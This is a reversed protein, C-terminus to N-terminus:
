PSTVRYFRQQDGATPDTFQYQGPSIETAGGVRAWNTFLSSLNTTSYVSFSSGPTNTFSFQFAGNQLIMVNELVIAPPLLPVTFAYVQNDGAVYIRGNAAIGTNFHRLGSMLENAGGGNFIVSGTDGNFGHLRQDGDGGMTWVIVNNTGDTSTVFPAGFGSVTGVWSSPVTPPSGAIVRYGVVKSSQYSGAGATTFAVYTAQPTRYTAPLQIVPGGGGSVKIVAPGIGGLNTRNIFYTNSDKGLVVLFQSPAAGPVDVMLAGSAGMDLDFSDLSKWNAPAWYDNTSGSFIPGPQFRIVAEGGSWTGAGFTNGTTVFPHIGDDSAVGSPAWIGGGVAGTAWALVNSPNNEQVGVVWGYYTSCDGAFGSYPVYVYGDLVALAGRQNQTASTFNTGQWRASADVDVPWGANTAGTDVNLAYILHRKTAGGDPTTMADLFLTRSALDVAPTGTIGLPDIDGCPLSSLPVPAGVNDQWIVDGTIADLGYVNDSETVAIIMARGGPGNEIYLPQAFVNGSIAGNFNVDRTLNSAAQFTFAPDVYLGDRTYHNHYQTVDAAAHTLFLLGGVAFVCVSIGIGKIFHCGMTSSFNAQGGRRDLPFEGASALPKLPRAGFFLCNYFWGDVASRRM